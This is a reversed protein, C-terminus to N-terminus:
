LGRSFVSIFGMYGVVGGWMERGHGGGWMFVLAM